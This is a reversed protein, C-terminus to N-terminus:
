ESQLEGLMFDILIIGLSVTASIGFRFLYDDPTPTGPTNVPFLNAVLTVAGFTLPLSGIFLSEARRVKHMWAPFEEDSYLEYSVGSVDKGVPSEAYITHLFLTTLIIIIVTKKLLNDVSM